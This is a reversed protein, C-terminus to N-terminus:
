HPNSIYSIMVSLAGVLYVINSIIIPSSNISIGYILWVIIGFSFLLYTWISVDKASKRKVIRYTQAFYGFSMAVGFIITLTILLDM